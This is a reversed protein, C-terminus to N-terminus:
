GALCGHYSEVSWQFDRRTLVWTALDRREAPAEDEGPFVTASRTVVIAADPALFRVSQVSHVRRSGRLPGAFAAAMSTDVDNKGRLYFGPLIVTADDAYWAAFASADGDAWAKSTAEFTAVVDDRASSM